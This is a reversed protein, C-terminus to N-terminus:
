TTSDPEAPLAPRPPGNEIQQALNELSTALADIASRYVGIYPQVHSVANSPQQLVVSEDTSPLDRHLALFGELSRLLEFDARLSLFQGRCDTDWLGRVTAVHKRLLDAETRMHKALPSYSTSIRSTDPSASLHEFHDAVVDYATAADTAAHFFDDFADFLAADSDEALTGLRQRWLVLIEEPHHRTTHIHRIVGPGKLDAVTIQSHADLPKLNDYRDYRWGGNSFGTTVDNRIRAVDLARSSESGAFCASALVFLCLTISKKM